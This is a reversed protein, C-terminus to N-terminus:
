GHNKKRVILMAKLASRGYQAMREFDRQSIPMNISDTITEGEEKDVYPDHTYVFRADFGTIVVWHPTRERYIRYSSILVLPIGGQDFHKKIDTVSMKGYHIPIPLPHLQELWDEQVLRMVERKGPNRVSDILFIGSESLYIEAGFGRTYAALAMGYPSSGGHGSTMFITTAERWLRLELKRGLVIAPNLAKMAMMLAAPGCTFELTQQYYPIKRVDPKLEPALHKEFRLADMHDEYYDPVVKFPKYGNHEFLSLSARNDRRIELRLSVCDHEIASREAAKVLADGIKKGREAPDVAISYLRATSTGRSFLILVYGRLKGQEEEVILDAQAKTLMYRFNRRTLRDTVFCRNELATLADLHALSATQLM